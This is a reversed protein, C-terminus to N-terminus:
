RCARRGIRGAAGLPTRRPRAEAAHHKHDPAVKLRLEPLLDAGAVGAAHRHLVNELRAVRQRAAEAYEARRDAIALVAQAM